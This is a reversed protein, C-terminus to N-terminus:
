VFIMLPLVQLAPGKVQVESFEVALNDDAILKGFAENLLSSKLLAMGYNGFASM